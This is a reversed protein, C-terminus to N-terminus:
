MNFEAHPYCCRVPAPEPVASSGYQQKLKDILGQLRAVDRDSARGIEAAKEASLHVTRAPELGFLSGSGILGGDDLRLVLKRPMMLM